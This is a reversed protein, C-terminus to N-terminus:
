KGTKEVIDGVATWLRQQPTIKCASLPLQDSCTVGKGPEWSVEITAIRAGNVYGKEAADRGEDARDPDDTWGDFARAIQAMLANADTTALGTATAMIHCSRGEAKGVFDIFDDESASTALGAAAQIKAAIQQCEAAPIPRLTDQQALGPAIGIGLGLAVVCGGGIAGWLRQRMADEGRNQRPRTGDALVRMVGFHRQASAAIENCRFAKQNNRRRRRQM